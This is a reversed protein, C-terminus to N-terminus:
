ANSKRKPKPKVQFASRGKRIIRWVRQIRHHLSPSTILIMGQVILTNTLLFFFLEEIPVGLPLIINLSLATNINWTHASLAFSDAFTLYLTPLAIGLLWLKWRRIMLDLGLLWQAVIIPGAWVLELALYTWHGVAAVKEEPGCASASGLGPSLLAAVALHCIARRGVNAPYLVPIRRGPRLRPNHEPRASSRLVLSTLRGSLQGLSNHVRRRDCNVWDTDAVDTPHTKAALHVAARRATSVYFDRPVPQLDCAM